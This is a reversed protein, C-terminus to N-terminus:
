VPTHTHTGLEYVIVSGKFTFTTGLSTWTPRFCRISLHSAERNKLPGVPAM